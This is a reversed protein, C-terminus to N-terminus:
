LGDGHRERQSEVEVRMELVPVREIRGCSLVRMYAVGHERRDQELKRATADDITTQM